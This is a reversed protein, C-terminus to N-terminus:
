ITGDSRGQVVKFKTVVDGSPFRMTITITEGIEVDSARVYDASGPLGDDLFRPTSPHATYPLPRFYSKEGPVAFVGFPGGTASQHRYLVPDGSEKVATPLEFSTDRVTSTIYGGVYAKEQGPIVVIVPDHVRIAPKKDSDAVDAYRPERDVVPTQFTVTIPDIAPGDPATFTLTIPLISGVQVRSRFQVLYGGASKGIVTKTTAELSTSPDAYILMAPAEVDDERGGTASNIKLGQDTHNVLTASLTAGGDDNAVLVPDKVEVGEAVPAPTAITQWGTPVADETLSSAGMGAAVGAVISAGLLAAATGKRMM